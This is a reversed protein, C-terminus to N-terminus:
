DCYGGTLHFCAGLWHSCEDGEAICVVSYCDDGSAACGGIEIEYDQGPVQLMAEAPSTVWLALVMCAVAVVLLAKVARLTKLVNM